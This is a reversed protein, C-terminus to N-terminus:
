ENAWSDRLASDAPGSDYSRWRKSACSGFANFGGHRIAQQPQQRKGASPRVRQPGGTRLGFQRMGTRPGFGNIARPPGFATAQVLASVTRQQEHLASHRTHRNPRKQVPIRRNVPHHSASPRASKSSKSSVRKGSFNKTPVLIITSPCV